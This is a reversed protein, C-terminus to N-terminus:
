TDGMKAMRYIIGRFRGSDARVKALEPSYVSSEPMSARFLVTIHYLGFRGQRGWCEFGEREGVVEGIVEQEGPDRMAQKAAHIIFGECPTRSPTKRVVSHGHNAAMRVTLSDVFQWWLHMLDLLLVVGDAFNIGIAPQVGRAPDSANACRIGKRVISLDSTWVNMLGSRSGSDSSPGEARGGVFNKVCIMEKSALCDLKGAIGEQKFLWLSKLNNAAIHTDKIGFALWFAGLVRQRGAELMVGRRSEASGEIKGQSHIGASGTRPVDDKENPSINLCYIGHEARESNRYM